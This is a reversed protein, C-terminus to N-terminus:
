KMGRTYIPNVRGSVKAFAIGKWKILNPIQDPSPLWQVYGPTHTRINVDPVTSNPLCLELGSDLHSVNPDTHYGPRPTVSGLWTAVLM